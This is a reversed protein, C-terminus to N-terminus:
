ERLQWDAPTPNVTYVEKGFLSVTTAQPLFYEITTTPNFPNPYNKELRFETPIVDDEPIGVSAGVLPRQYVGNGHTVLRLKRNVTSIDLDSVLLAEALGENFDQWSNGEDLSVYM